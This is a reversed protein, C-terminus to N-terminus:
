PYVCSIIGRAVGVFASTRTRTRCQGMHVLIWFMFANVVDLAIFTPMYLIYLVPPLSNVHSWLHLLKPAFTSTVLLAYQFPPKWFVGIDPIVKQWLQVGMSGVGFPSLFLFLLLFFHRACRHAHRPSSLRCTAAFEDTTDLPAYNLQILHSVLLRFFSSQLSLLRSLNISHQFSFFIISELKPDLDGPTM